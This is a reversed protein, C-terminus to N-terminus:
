RNGFNRFKVKEDTSTYTFSFRFAVILTSGCSGDLDTAFTEQEAFFLKRSLLIFAAWALRGPGCQM